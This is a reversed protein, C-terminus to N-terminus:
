SSLSKILSSSNALLPTTMQAAGGAEGSATIATDWGQGKPGGPPKFEVGSVGCAGTNQGSKAEKKERRKGEQRSQSKTPKPNPIPRPQIASDGRCARRRCTKPTRSVSLALGRGDSPMAEDSRATRYDRWRRWGIGDRDSRERSTKGGRWWGPRAVLWRTLRSAKQRRGCNHM